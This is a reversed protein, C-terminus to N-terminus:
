RRPQTASRPTPNGHDFVESAVARRCWRKWAEPTWGYEAVLTQYTSPSMLVLLLDTATKHDLGELLAFRSALRQVMDAWAERRRTETQARVRAAEPETATARIYDDLPATRAFIVAVNDILITLAEPLDAAEVMADYWPQLQPPRENDEGLVAFDYTHQLLQAKTGFTFHVTQVAVDAARAVDKMTTAAYGREVFLEYAARLMRIRTLRARQARTLGTAKVDTMTGSM